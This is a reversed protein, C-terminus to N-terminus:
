AKTAEAVYAALDRIQAQRLQGKYGPMLSLGNTIVWVAVSYDIREGTLNPGVRGRTRAPALRHCVGCTKVFLAKGKVVDGKPKTATTAALAGGCASLVVAAAIAPAQFRTRVIARLAADQGDKAVAAVPM